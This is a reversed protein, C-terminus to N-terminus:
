EAQWLVIGRDINYYLAKDEHKLKVLENSNVVIPAINKEAKKNFMNIKKRVQDKESTLIFLDIDSSKVNSGQACSGFLIIKKSNNKLENVLGKLSYVSRLVKFQRVVPDDWNLKYFVMRGKEERELMSIDALIRLIKNVAGKSVGAKRVVERM